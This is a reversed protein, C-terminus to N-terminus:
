SKRGRLIKRVLKNPYCYKKKPKESISFDISKTLKNLLDVNIESYTNILSKHNDDIIVDSVSSSEQLKKIMHSIAPDDRNHGAVLIIPKDM